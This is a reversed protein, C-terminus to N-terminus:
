SINNRWIRGTLKLKLEEGEQRDPVSSLFLALNRQIILGDLSDRVKRHSDRISRPIGEWILKKGNGGVQLSYNFKQADEESGMFRLFAIYVPAMGLPFAEFHLCFHYGFCNFVTLMWTANQVEQPKSMVYRHNFSAGNYMDVKHDRKLHSVLYPIDGTVNCDTGAYPCTYPRFQCVEEHNLRMQHPFIYRCGFMQYKCPLDLSEAAMELALCRINGLEHECVPCCRVKSKCNSCLTHGNPCQQIPPYMLHMCIPCELLEYIASNLPMGFKDDVSEESELASCYDSIAATSEDISVSASGGSAMIEDFVPFLHKVFLVAKSKGIPKDQSFYCLGTICFRCFDLFQTYDNRRLCCGDDIGRKGIKMLTPPADDDKPGFSIINEEFYCSDELSFSSSSSSSEIDVKEWEETSPDFLYIKNHRMIKASDYIVRKENPLIGLLSPEKLDDYYELHIRRPLIEEIWVEDRCDYHFIKDSYRRRFEHGDEFGGVFLRGARRIGLQRLRTGNEPEPKAVVISTGFSM